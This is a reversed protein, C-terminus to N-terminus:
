KLKEWFRVFCPSSCNARPFIRTWISQVSQVKPFFLYILSLKILVISLNPKKEWYFIQLFNISNLFAFLKWSIFYVDNWQLYRVWFSIITCNFIRARQVILFAWDIVQSEDKWNRDLHGFQMRLLSLSNSQHQQWARITISNRFRYKCSIDSMKQQNLIIRVRVSIHWM